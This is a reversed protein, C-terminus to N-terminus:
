FDELEVVLRKCSLLLWSSSTYSEMKIVDAAVRARVRREIFHVRRRQVSVSCTVHSCNQVPFVPEFPTPSPRYRQHFSGGAHPEQARRHMYWRMPRRGATCATPHPFCPSFPPCNARSHSTRRAASHHPTSSRSSTCAARRTVLWCVGDTARWARLATGWRCLFLFTVRCVCLFLFTLVVCDWGGAVGRV